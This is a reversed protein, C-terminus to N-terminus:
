LGLKYRDKVIDDYYHEHLKECLEERMEKPFLKSLKGIIKKERAFELCGQNVMPLFDKVIKEQTYNKNRKIKKAIPFIYKKYLDDHDILFWFLEDKSFATDDKESSQKSNLTKGFFEFLKM